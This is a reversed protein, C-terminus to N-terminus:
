LRQLELVHEGSERRWAGLTMGFLVISLVCCACDAGDSPSM